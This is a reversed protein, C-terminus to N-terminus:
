VHDNYDQGSSFSSQSIDFRKEPQYTNKHQMADNLVFSLDCSFRMQIRAKTKRKGLTATKRM